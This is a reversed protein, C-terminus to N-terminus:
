TRSNLQQATGSAHYIFDGKLKFCTIAGWKRSYNRDESRVASSISKYFIKGKFLAIYFSTPSPKSFICWPQTNSFFRIEFAM